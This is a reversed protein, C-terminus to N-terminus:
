YKSIKVFSSPSRSIGEIICFFFPYDILPVALSIDFIIWSPREVLVELGLGFLKLFPSRLM